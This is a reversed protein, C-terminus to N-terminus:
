PVLIQVAAIKSGRIKLMRDAEAISTDTTLKMLCGPRDLYAVAEAPVVDPVVPEVAVSIVGDAGARAPASVRVLAFRDFVGEEGDVSVWRFGIYDIPSLILGAAVDTMTLLCEGDAAISDSWSGASGDFWGGGVRTMARFGQPHARPWPRRLDRAFAMRQQGRLSTLLAEWEDSTEAKLNGLTWEASWLPWGAQVGGRRGSTEPAAYDVRELVFRQRSVGNIPFSRLM